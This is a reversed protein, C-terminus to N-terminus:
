GLLARTLLTTAAISSIILIARRLATGETFRRLPGSVVFGLLAPPTLLLGVYVDHWSIADAAVRGTLTMLGGVFFLVGLNARVRPGTDRHYLLAMPPGGISSLTSMVGSTLGAGFETATNRRIGADSAFIAVAALVIVGVAFDVGRQSSTLLLLGAGIVTGPVRGAVIFAIPRLQISARERWATASSLTLSIILQPVPALEPSLLLLTPISIINFGFGFTAQVTAALMTVFAAVLLLQWATELEIM